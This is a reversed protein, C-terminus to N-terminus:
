RVLRFGDRVTWVSVGSAVAGAWAGAVLVGWMRWAVLFM